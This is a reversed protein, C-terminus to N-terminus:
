GTWVDAKELFEREEREAASELRWPPIISEQANWFAAAKAPLEPDAPILNSRADSQLM